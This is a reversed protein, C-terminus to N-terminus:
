MSFARNEISIKFIKDPTEQQTALPLNGHYLFACMTNSVHYLYRHFEPAMGDLITSIVTYRPLVLDFSYDHWVIVSAENKLLPLVKRTDNLVGDYSHDGDIFIVDFKKDLLTFVFQQSNAFISLINERNQILCGHEQAYKEPLGMSIIEDPALNASTCEVGQVDAVNVISKCRWTGIELHECYPFTAAFSKLLALDTILSGGDLFTYNDIATKNDTLFNRINITPFESVNYKSKLHNLYENEDKLVLFISVPPDVLKKKIKFVASIKQKITM